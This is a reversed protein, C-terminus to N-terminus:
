VKSQPRVSVLTFHFERERDGDLELAHKLRAHLGLIHVRPPHRANAPVEKADKTELKDVDVEQAIIITLELVVGQTASTGNSVM